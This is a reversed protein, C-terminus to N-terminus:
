FLILQKMLEEFESKTIKIDKKIIKNLLGTGIPEKGHVPITTKRGDLHEFRYHSGNM